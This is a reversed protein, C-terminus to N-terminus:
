IKILKTIESTELSELFFVNQGAESKEEKDIKANLEM